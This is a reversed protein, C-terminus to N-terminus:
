PRIRPPSIAINEGGREVPVRGADVVDIADVAVGRLEAVRGARGRRGLRSHHRMAGIDGFIEGARDLHFKGCVVDRQRSQREVVGRLHVGEGHRLHHDAGDRMQDFARRRVDHEFQDLPQLDRGEERRRGDPDAQQAMGIKELAVQLRQAVDVVACGDHRHRNQLFQALFQRAHPEVIAIALGLDRREGGDELRLLM